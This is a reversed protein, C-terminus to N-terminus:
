EIKHLLTLLQSDKKKRNESWGISTPITKTTSDVVLRTVCLNTDKGYSEIIYQISRSYFRHNM